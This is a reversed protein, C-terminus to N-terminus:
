SNATNVVWSQVSTYQVKGNTMDLAYVVTATVVPASTCLSACPRGTFTVTYQGTGATATCNVNIDVGNVQMASTPTTFDPCSTGTSFIKYLRAQIAADVAGEAAYEVNHQARTNNSNLVSAGTLNTLALVLLSGVLLFIMALVLTAGRDDRHM